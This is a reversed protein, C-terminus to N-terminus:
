NWINEVAFLVAEDSPAPEKRVFTNYKRWGVHGQLLCLSVLRLPSLALGLPARRSRYLSHMTRSFVMVGMGEVKGKWARQM